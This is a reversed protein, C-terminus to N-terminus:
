AAVATRPLADAADAHEVILDALRDVQSPPLDHAMQEIRELRAGPIRKVLDEAHAYPVLPDAVGHIVLAPASIRTLRDARNGDHVIALLQRRTGLPNFGADFARGVLNEISERTRAPDPYSIANQVEIGLAIVQDRTLDPAPRRILLRRVEPSPGPLGPAGSSSMISTLSAVRQPWEAAMIQAIMGGMSAGVVHARGIDLGDLLAIADAAMDNLTYAVPFSWGLRASLLARIPSVTRAGHLHTSRGIDRNDYRIVRYGGEVLRAVFADPWAIGQTGLGMVLLIAPDAPNGFDEYYLDIANATVHPM